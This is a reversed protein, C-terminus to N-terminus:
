PQNLWEKIRQKHIAIQRKDEDNFEPNLRNLAANLGQPSSKFMFSVQLARWLATKNNQTATATIHGMQILAELMYAYFRPELGIYEKKLISMLETKNDGILYTEFGLQSNDAGSANNSPQAAVKSKSVKKGEISDPLLESSNKLSQIQEETSRIEDLVYDKYKQKEIIDSTRFIRKPKGNPYTPSLWSEVNRTLEDKLWLLRFHAIDTSTNVFDNNVRESIFAKLDQNYKKQRHEKLLQYDHTPVPIPKGQRELYENYPKMIGEHFAKSGTYKLPKGGQEPDGDYITM